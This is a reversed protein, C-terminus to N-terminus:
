ERRGLEPCLDVASCHMARAIQVLLPVTLTKTGREIQCLMSAAIGVREGLDSQSMSLAERRERIREKYDM